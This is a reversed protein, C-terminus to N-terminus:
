VPPRLALGPARGEESGRDRIWVGVLAPQLVETVAEALEVEIGELEAEQGLRATFAEVTRRADYRSRFFRRDVARQVRRRLPNFLGAVLLTSGAVVLDRQETLGVLRPLGLVGVAYIAGLTITLSGYVLTRNIVLDIDYLRHSLIAIAIVVPALVFGLAILVGDVTAGLPNELGPVLDILASLVAYGVGLAIWFLLWRLRLRQTPDSRRYRVVLGTAVLVGLIPGFLSGPAAMLALASMDVRGSYTLILGAVIVASALVAYSLIFWVVPRWGHAPVRGDPFLLIVLAAMAEVGRWAVVATGDLLWATFPLSSPGDRALEALSPPPAPSLVYGFLNGALFVYAALCAAVLMMWGIPHRPRHHVILLGVPAFAAALLAGVGPMLGILDVINSPSIWAVVAGSVLLGATLAVLGWMLAM